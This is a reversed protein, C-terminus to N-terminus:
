KERILAYRYFDRGAIYKRMLGERVFGMREAWRMSVEHEADITTQVRELDMIEIILELRRWVTKAFFIPYREVLTSSVVWAEGVGKWYPLVGGCVVIEEDILGTFAVSKALNNAVERPNPFNLFTIMDFRRRSIRMYDDPTYRRVKIM